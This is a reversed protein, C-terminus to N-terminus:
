LNGCVIFSHLYRRRDKRYQLLRPDANPMPPLPSRQGIFIETTHQPILALIRMVDAQTLAGIMRFHRMPLKTIDDLPITTDALHLKTLSSPLILHNFDGHLQLHLDTLHPPLTVEETRQVRGTAPVDTVKIIFHFLKLHKLHRVAVMIGGILEPTMGVAWDHSNNLVLETLTDGPLLDIIQTLHPLHPHYNTLHLVTLQKQYACSDLQTSSIGTLVQYKGKLPTTFEVAKDGPSTRIHLETVSDPVSVRLFSQLTLKRLAIFNGASFTTASYINSNGTLKLERLHPLVALCETGPLGGPGGSFCGTLSTISHPFLQVESPGFFGFVGVKLSTINTPLKLHGRLLGCEVRIKANPLSALGTKMNDNLYGGGILELERISKPLSPLCAITISLDPNDLASISCCTLSPVSGLFTSLIKENGSDPQYSEKIVLTHLAPRECQPYYTLVRCGELQLKSIGLPLSGLNVECLHMVPRILLDTLTAPLLKLVEDTVSDSHLHLTQLYPPLQLLWTTSIMPDLTLDLHLLGTFHKLVPAYYGDGNLNPTSQLIYQLRRNGTRWLEVWSGMPCWQTVSRWCDVDLNLEALM